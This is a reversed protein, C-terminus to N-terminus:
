HYSTPVQWIPSQQSLAEKLYPGDQFNRLFGLNKVLLQLQESAKPSLQKTLRLTLM